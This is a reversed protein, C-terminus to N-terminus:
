QRHGQEKEQASNPYPEQCIKQGLWITVTLPDGPLHVVERTELHSATFWAKVEDGSFGLRRHEHDTRLSEVDHPAFDVILLRGDPRLVRAAESVALAPEDAFHLVQHITVVDYSQAPFPLQYMNGQRITVNGLNAKDLNSRAMALMEHSLDVGVASAIRPCFLELMRGTGTGVDLLHDTSRTTLLAELAREVESDDVHLSRLRDWRAANKAFYDAAARARDKKVQVLRRLDLSLTEDDEPLLSTLSNAVGGSGNAALRHFVWSGERYRDLLGAETLLKLHRSIRPQSQGLIRVLESVTLDGRACLALLRIRTPDAAARLATLLSEM